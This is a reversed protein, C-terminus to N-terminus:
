DDRLILIAHIDLPDTSPTKPRGATTQLNAMAGLWEDDPLNSRALAALEREVAACQPTTVVTRATQAAALRASRLHPPASAISADIRSTLDRRRPANSSALGAAATANEEDAWRSIMEIARSFDDPDTTTEGGDSRACIQIQTALDTVVRDKLGILLRPAGHWSIASLHSYHDDRPIIWRELIARLQEVKEPTAQRPSERESTQLVNASELGPNPASTGVVDKALHWKRQVISEGRLVEDASRPPRLVHVHVSRHASGLRAIRGVRQEMRAVTWPIDLHIVTDADQLNVGESLLDTTLLLDIREAPPPAPSGTAVPAFRAVAEYRSLAGGAVRAGHSTLMATRTERSLRRFLMSVTESYQAFAVARRHSDGAAAEAVILARSEDILARASFGAHIRQLAELHTRVAPLMEADGPIPTSLLEPFALQIAGDGYAWSELEQATPYTGAELSARLAIARAIRKRVAERFAAESSAWLHLLGRGILRKAEGGDRLPVPPPLDLLQEVVTSDDPVDHHVAPLVTPIRLSRELQHHERRVVCLALESATLARARSGLFLSLLAALDDRRNHIPTASLLLVRAGRVLSELAFFRNTLPNRVHHAEDVIVLDFQERERTPDRERGTALDRERRRDEVDVRSLAEFTILEADTATRALAAKWMSVLAAPMVVLRREFRRAISIAVYTKGMGVDDCLLAGHFRDISALLREIASRQHPHLTISGLPLDDGADGLIVRAIRSQVTRM